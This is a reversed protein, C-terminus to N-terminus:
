TGTLTTLGSAESAYVVLDYDNLFTALGNDKGGRPLSPANALVCADIELVINNGKKLTWIKNNISIYWHLIGAKHLRQLCVIIDQAIKLLLIPPPWLMSFPVSISQSLTIERKRCISLTEMVTQWNQLIMDQIIDPYSWITFNIHSVLWPVDCGNNAAKNFIEAKNLTAEM